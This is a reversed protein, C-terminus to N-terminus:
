LWEDKLYDFVAQDIDADPPVSIYARVSLTNGFAGTGVSKTSMFSVGINGEPEVVTKTIKFPKIMDPGM